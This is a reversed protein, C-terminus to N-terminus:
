KDDPDAYGKAPNEVGILGQFDTPLRQKIAQAFAIKEEINKVNGFYIRYAYGEQTQCYVTLEFRNTLDVLVVQQAFASSKIQELLAEEQPGINAIPEVLLLILDVDAVSERVINVM